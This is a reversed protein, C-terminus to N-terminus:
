LAEERKWRYDKMVCSEAQYQAYIKKNRMLGLNIVNVGIHEFEM